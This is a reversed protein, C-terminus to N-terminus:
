VKAFSTDNGLHIDGPVVHVTLETTFISDCGFITKLTDNYIGSETYTHGNFTYGEGQCIDIINDYSYINNVSLNTIILSDHDNIAKLTDNYVGASNYIHNNIFYSQGQCFPFMKNLEIIITLLLFQTLLVTVGTFVSFHILILGQPIM